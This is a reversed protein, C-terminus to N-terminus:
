KKKTAEYVAVKAEPSVDDVQESFTLAYGDPDKVTFTRDGWFETKPENIV